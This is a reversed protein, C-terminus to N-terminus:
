CVSESTNTRDEANEETRRILENLLDFTDVEKLSKPIYITGKGVLGGNSFEMDKIRKMMNEGVGSMRAKAEAYEKPTNSRMARDKALEIAEYEALAEGIGSVPNVPGGQKTTFYKVIKNLFLTLDTLLKMEREVNMMEEEEQAM